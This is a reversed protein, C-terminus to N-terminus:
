YNPHILEAPAQESKPRWGWMRLWQRLADGSPTGAPLQAARRVEDPGAVPRAEGDTMVLWDGATTVTALFGEARFSTPRGEAPVEIDLAKIVAAATVDFPIARFQRWSPTSMLQSGNEIFFGVGSLPRAKVMWGHGAM